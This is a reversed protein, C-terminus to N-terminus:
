QALIVAESDPRVELVGGNLLLTQEEDDPFTYRIKGPAVLTILPLHNDLVTIEGQPTPLTLSKVEGEFLAQQISYIALKM